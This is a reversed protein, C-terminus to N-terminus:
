FNPNLPKKLPFNWAKTCIFITKYMYILLYYIELKTTKKKDRILQRLGNRKNIIIWWKINNHMINNCHLENDHKSEQYIYKILYM